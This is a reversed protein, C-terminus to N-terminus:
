VRWSLFSLCEFWLLSNFLLLFVWFLVIAVLMWSLLRASSLLILSCVLLNYVWNGFLGNWLLGMLIYVSVFGFNKVFCSHLCPFFTTNSLSSLGKLQNQLRNLEYLVPDSHGFSFEEGGLLQEFGVM